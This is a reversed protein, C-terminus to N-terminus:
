RRFQRKIDQMSIFWGFLYFLSQCVKKNVKSVKEKKRDSNETM